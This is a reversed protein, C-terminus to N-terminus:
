VTAEDLSKLLYMRWFCGFIGFLIVFLETLSVILLRSCNQGLCCCSQKAQNNDDFVTKGLNLNDEQDIM